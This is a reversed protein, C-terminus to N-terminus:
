FDYRVGLAVFENDYRSNKSNRTDIAVRASLKQTIQARYLLTSVKVDSNALLKEDININAHGLLLSQGTLGYVGLDFLITM